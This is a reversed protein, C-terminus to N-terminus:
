KSAAANKGAIRGFVSAEGLNGGGNYMDPWLAGCEGCSYLHPIPYGNLGLVEANSNRQPGGQTNYMTPGLEMAYFPATSVPTLTSADRGYLADGGKNCSANWQDVTSKLAKSDLKCATALDEITNAKLIWGKAIEDVNGASFSTILKNAAAQKSDVIYWTPLPVPMNVWRGGISVRGHRNTQAENMFRTANPGVLIGRNPTITLCRKADPPMFAWLWGACNSMHWLKAKVEQAMRIGDGSNYLAGYPYFYPQQTFNALMENNNEFGGTALVVGNNARVNIVNGSKIVQVGLITKGDPGPILHTAPAENWVEIPRKVVNDYLLKWFAGDFNKGSVLWCICHDSGPLEPYENWVWPKGTGLGSDLTAASAGLSILWERNELAGNAFTRIMDDSITHTFLGCIAKVYNFLQDADDTGMVGQGSYKTNGGEEGAAAKELLLVKAGADAATIAAASGGAGFGIVIVDTAYDWDYTAAEAEQPNLGALLTGGIAASGALLGANKLFDRRSFKKADLEKKNESMKYGKRETFPGFRFSVM